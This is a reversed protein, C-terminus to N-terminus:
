NLSATSLADSIGVATDGATVHYIPGISALLGSWETNNEQM